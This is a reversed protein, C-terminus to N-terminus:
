HAHRPEARVIQADGGLGVAARHGVGVVGDLLRQAAPQRGLPRLVAHQALLM